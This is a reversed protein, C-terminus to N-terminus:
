DGGGLDYAYAEYVLDAGRQRHRVIRGLLRTGLDRIVAAETPTVPPQCLATLEAIETTIQAHEDTLIQVAHGLRPASSLIEQHLGDAGETVAIHAAFDDSVEILVCRVLESWEAEREPSPGALAEELADLSERLEARRRRVADLEPSIRITDM